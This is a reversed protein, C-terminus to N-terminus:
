GGVLSVITGSLQQMMERAAIRLSAAAAQVAGNLAGAAATLFAAAQRHQEMWREGGATIGPMTAIATYVGAIMGLMLVALVIPPLLTSANGPATTPASRSQADNTMPIAALMPVSYGGEAQSFLAAVGYAEEAQPLAPGGFLDAAGAGPRSRMRNEFRDIGLALAAGGLLGLLGASAAKAPLQTPVPRGPPTAQDVVVIAAQGSSVAKSERILADRRLSSIETFLQEDVRVNRQLRLLALENKSV